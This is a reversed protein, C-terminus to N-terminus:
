EMYDGFILGHTAGRHSERKKSDDGDGGDGGFSNEM